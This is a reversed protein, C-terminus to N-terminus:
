ASGRGSMLTPCNCRWQEGFRRSNFAPKRDGAVFRQVAATFDDSGYVDALVRDAQRPDSGPQLFLKTAAQTAPALSAIHRAYDATRTALDDLPCMWSVVGMAHLVDTDVLEATLLMRRALADGLVSQIYRTVPASLANGLTAAIPMGLRTGTAAVRLDCLLALVGGGGAATGNLSAVTVQPLHHVAMMAETSHREIALSQATSGSAAFHGIDTGAVFAKTGTGTIVLVRVSDDASLQRCLEVLTDYMELTLAGRAEPRNVTLTTVAGETRILM